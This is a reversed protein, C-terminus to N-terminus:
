NGRVRKYSNYLRPSILIIHVDQLAAGKEEKDSEGKCEKRKNLVNGRKILPSKAVGRALIYIYYSLPITWNSTSSYSFAKLLGHLL